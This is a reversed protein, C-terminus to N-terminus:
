APRTHDYFANVYGASASSTKNDIEQRVAAKTGDIYVNVTPVNTGFKHLDQPTPLKGTARYRYAFYDMEAPAHVLAPNMDNNMQTTDPKKKGGFLGGLLDLAGGALGGILTGGPGFMSGIQAGAAAGGLVGGLTVGQQQGQQFLSYGALAAAGYNMYRQAAADGKTKAGSSGGAAAGADAGGVAGTQAQTNTTLATTLGQLAAIENAISTVLPDSFRKIQAELATDVISGGLKSAIDGIGGKGHFFDMFASTVQSQTQNHIENYREAPYNKRYASATNRAEEARQGQSRVQEPSLAFSALQMEQSIKAELLAVRDLRAAESQFAQQETQRGRPANTKEVQKRIVDYGIVANNIGRQFKEAAARDRLNLLESNADALRDRMEKLKDATEETPRAIEALKAIADTVAAITAQLRTEEIGNKDAFLSDPRAMLQRARIRADAGQALGGAYNNQEKQRAETDREKWARIDDRKIPLGGFDTNYERRFDYANQLADQREKQADAAERAAETTKDSHTKGLSALFDGGPTMGLRMRELTGSDHQGAAKQKTLANIRAALPKAQKLLSGFDADGGEALKLLWDMRAKVVEATDNLADQQVKQAAEAARRAEDMAKERAKKVSDPNAVIGGNPSGGVGRESVHIHNTHDGGRAPDNFRWLAAKDNGNENPAFGRQALYATLQDGLAAGQPNNVNVPLGNIKTIDFANGTVHRSPHGSTTKAGHGTIATGVEIVFNLDKAAQQIDALLQPNVKIRDQPHDFGVSGLRAGARQRVAANQSRSAAIQSDTNHLWSQMQGLPLNVDGQFRNLVSEGRTLPFKTLFWNRESDTLSEGLGHNSDRLDRWDRTKAGSGDDSANYADMVQQVISRQTKQQTLQSGHYLPTQSSVNAREVDLAAQNIAQYQDAIDHLWAKLGSTKAANDIALFAGLFIRQMEQGTTLMQDKLKGAEDTAGSLAKTAKDTEERIMKMSEAGQTGLFRFSNQTGSVKMLFEQAKATPLRNAVAVINELTKVLDIGGDNPGGKVRALDFKYVKDGSKVGGLASDYKKILQAIFQAAETGGMRGRVGEATLATLVGTVQELPVKAAEAIPGLYKLANTIEGMEASADKYTIALLEGIRRFNEAKGATKDLQSGFQEYIQILARSTERADSQTGVVLNMTTQVAQFQADAEHVFTGIQYYAEGLDKISAGTRAAEEAMGAKVLGMDNSSVVRSVRAVQKEMEQHAATVEGIGKAVESFVFSLAKYKLFTGFLNLSKENTKDIEGGAKQLSNTSQNVSATAQNMAGPLSQAQAQWKAYTAMVQQVRKDHNLLATNLSRISELGQVDVTIATRRDAM